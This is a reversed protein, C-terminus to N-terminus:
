FIAPLWQSLVVGAGFSVANAVLTYVPAVWLPKRDQEPVCANLTRRYVFAEAAVIALELAAYGAVYVPLSARVLALAFVLNLVIQTVANTTAIISRQQWARYGFAVAVLLELGITLACRLTFAFGQLFLGYQVAVHIGNTITSHPVIATPDITVTYIGSLTFYSYPREYVLYSDQQPLYVLIKFPSPPRYGWEFTDTDSCNEYYQLFYYGDSDQYANFKEWIEGTPDDERYEKPAPFERSGYEDGVEGYAWQPGNSVYKSLLTVWYEEQELGQFRVIVSPHPGADALATAPTLLLAM